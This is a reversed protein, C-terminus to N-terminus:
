FHTNVAETRIGKKLPRSEAEYGEMVRSDISDLMIDTDGRYRRFRVTLKGM